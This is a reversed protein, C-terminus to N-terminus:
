ETVCHVSKPIEDLRVVPTHPADSDLYCYARSALSLAKVTEEVQERTAVEIVKGDDSILVGSMTGDFLIGKNVGLPYAQEHCPIFAEALHEPSFIAAHGRHTTIRCKSGVRDIRAYLDDDNIRYTAFPVFLERLTSLVWDGSNRDVLYAASNAFVLSRNADLPATRIIEDSVQFSRESILRGNEIRAINLRHATPEWQDAHRRGSYPTFLRSGVLKIRQDDTQALWSSQFADYETGLLLNDLEGGAERSFLTLKQLNRSMQPYGGFQVQGPGLIGGDALLLQTSQGPMQFSNLPKPLSPTSLDLMTVSSGVGSGQWYGGSSIMARDSSFVVSPNNDTNSGIALKNLFSISNGAVGLTQLANDAFVYLHGNQFQIQNKNSIQGKVSLPGTKFAIANDKQEMTAMANDLRVFSGAEFRYISMQTENVTEFRPYTESRQEHKECRGVWVKSCTQGKPVYIYQSVVPAAEKICDALAKGNCSYDGTTPSPPRYDPNPKQEYDVHCSDVEYAHPNYDTCVTYYYTEYRVFRTTAVDRPVVLYRDSATVFQKFTKRESILQGPEYKAGPAVGELPDQKELDDLLADEWDVGLADDWKVVLVKTGLKPEEVRAPEAAMAGAMSAAKIAGGNDNSAPEKPPPQPKSWSTYAVITQDFLRADLIRQDDFRVSDLFRFKAGDFSYRLLASRNGARANVVIVLESGKFLFNVPEGPLKMSCSLKPAGERADVALLGHQKSLFMAIGNQVGVLDPREIVPAASADSAGASAYMMEEDGGSRSPRPGNYLMPLASNKLISVPHSWAFGGLFGSVDRFAPSEEALCRAGQIPDAKQIQSAFDEAALAADQDPVRVKNRYSVSLEEASPSSGSCGVGSSGACAAIGLGLLVHPLRLSRLAM